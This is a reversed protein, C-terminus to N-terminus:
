DTVTVTRHLNIPNLQGFVTFSMFSLYHEGPEFDRLVFTYTITDHFAQIKLLDNWVGDTGPAPVHHVTAGWGDWLTVVTMKIEVARPLGTASAVTWTPMVGMGPAPYTQTPALFNRWRSLNTGQYANFPSINAAAALGSWTAQDAPSLQAWEASLFGMMARMALQGPARPQTPSAHKKLYATNKWHSYILARALTGTARTGLAPATLKVM